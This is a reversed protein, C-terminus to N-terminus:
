APTKGTVGQTAQLPQLQPQLQQNLENVLQFVQDFPMRGLAAMVVNMKELSLTITLDANM